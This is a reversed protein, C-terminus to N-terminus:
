TSIIRDNIKRQFTEILRKVAKTKLNLDFLRPTLIKWKSPFLPKKAFYEIGRLYFFGPIFTVNGLVQGLYSKSLDLLRFGKPFIKRIRRKEIGLYDLLGILMLLHRTGEINVAAKKYKEVIRYIANVIGPNLRDSFDELDEQAFLAFTNWLYLFTNLPKEKGLKKIIKNSNSLTLIGHKLWLDVDNVVLIYQLLQLSGIFDKEELFQEEDINSCIKEISHKDLQGLRNLISLSAIKESASAVTVADAKIKDSYDAVLRFLSLKLGRNPFNDFAGLGRNISKYTSRDILATIVPLDKGPFDTKKEDFINLQRCGAMAACCKFFDGRLIFEEKKDVPLANFTDIFGLQAVEQPAFSDYLESLVGLNGNSFILKLINDTGIKERFEHDFGGCLRKFLYLERRFSNIPRKGSIAKDVLRGSIDRSLNEMLDRAPSESLYHLIHILEFFTGQEELLNLYRASGIKIVLPDLLGKTEIARLGPSISSLPSSEGKTNEIIKEISEQSLNDIKNNAEVKSSHRLLEVIEYLTTKMNTLEIKEM